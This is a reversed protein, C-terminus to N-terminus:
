NQKKLRPDLADRLGDGLLNFSLVTVLICIGPLTVMWPSSEIYSRADSLMTGWESMPAQAGLGLFGLAAVNLIGDSFGLSAQVILPAMCNPLIELFMIRANGAGFLKAAQVYQRNKEVMVQARIIRIFNPVAVVSVAVIANSIGPGLVAVIVIAFLISPLSMILDTFRMILRDIMGGYFGAIVGLFTGFILSLVVVSFGVSLSIRSGYILRSLLDRGIDDTGFFFGSRGGEIFAPPLRLADPFVETPNHPALIPALFAIFLSIIIIVIGIMAGRNKKLEFYLESFFIKM